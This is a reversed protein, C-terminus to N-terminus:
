KEVRRSFVIILFAIAVILLVAGVIDYIWVSQYPQPLNAFTYTYPSGTFQLAALNMNNSNEWGWKDQVTIVITQGLNEPTFTVNTANNFVAVTQSGGGPYQYAVTVSFPFSTNFAGTLNYVGSHFQFVGNSLFYATYPVPPPSVLFTMGVPASSYGDVNFSTSFEYLGPSLGSFYYFFQLGNPETINGAQIPTGNLDYVGLTYSLGSTQPVNNIAYIGEVQVDVTQNEIYMPAVNARLVFQPTQGGTDAAQVASIPGLISIAIFLVVVSLILMKM